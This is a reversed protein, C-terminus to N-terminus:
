PKSDARLYYKAQGIRRPQVGKAMQKGVRARIHEQLRDLQAAGADNSGNGLASVIHAPIVYEGDSLKANIDDSTGDGPGRVHRMGQDPHTGSVPMGGQALHALGGQSMMPGRMAGAYMLPNPRAGGYQQALAAMQQPNMQGGYQPAGVPAPPAAPPAGPSTTGPAAGGQSPQLMALLQALPISNGGAQQAGQAMQPQQPQQGFFSPMPGQGLTNWNTGAMNNPTRPATSFNGWQNAGPHAPNMGGFMQPANPHYQATMNQGNNSLAGAMGLGGGLLAGIGKPSLLSQALSGWGSAGNGSGGTPDTGISLNSVDTPTISSTFDNNLTPDPISPATPPQWTSGTVTVTNSPDLTSPDVYDASTLSPTVMSVDGGDDFHALGGRRFSVTMNPNAKALQALQALGAPNYQQAQQPAQQQQQFGAFPSMGSVTQGNIGVQSQPTLQGQTYAGILNTIASQLAPGEQQNTGVIMGPTGTQGLAADSGVTIGQSQLWPAVVQSYIQGPSSQSNIKGQQAAQNIQGTMQDMFTNEGMRGFKQELQEAQGPDNHRADMMGSLLQWDQSPNLSQSVQPNQNYQPVYSNWNSNEPDMRGPGFASSLAGIAGGALGGILTGVGPIISGVAAGAEAGSLADSGTAGSKWNKAANYVALPAAIYGGVASLAPNGMLNGALQAANAGAGGYGLVGGQKIGNYIGLANNAGTLASNVGAGGFGTQGNLLKATNIGAQAQQQPNGSTLGQYAGLGGAIDGAATAGTALAPNYAAGADLASAGLGLAASTTPDM